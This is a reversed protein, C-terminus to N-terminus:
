EIYKFSKLMTSVIRRYKKFESKKAVFTIIFAQNSRIGWVHLFQLYQGEAVAEGAGQGVYSFRYAPRRALSTMRSELVRVHGEFTGTLQKMATKSFHELNTTKLGLDQFTINVNEHFTDMATQQPAIFVVVAGPVNEPRKVVRWDAPYKISIGYGKDVYDVFEGMEYHQMLAGVILIIGVLIVLGLFISLRQRRSLSRIKEIIKKM